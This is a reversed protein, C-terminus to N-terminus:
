HAPYFWFYLDMGMQVLAVLVPIVTVAVAWEAIRRGTADRHRGIVECLVVVVAVLVFKFVVMGPVDWREIVWGAVVNEEAGRSETMTVDRPFLVPHLILYTLMIDLAALFIFWVYANPYRM